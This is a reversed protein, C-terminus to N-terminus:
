LSKAVKLYRSVSSPKTYKGLEIEPHDKLLEKMDVRGRNHREIMKAFVNGNNLLKSSKANLMTTSIEAKIAMFKSQAIEFMGAAERYKEVLTAECEVPEADNLDQDENAALQTLIDLSNNVDEKDHNGDKVPPTKTDICRKLEATRIMMAVAETEYDRLYMHRQIYEHGAVLVAFYASYIGSTLMQWIVQDRYYSPITEKGNKDFWGHSDSVNKCEIIFSYKTPEFDKCRRKWQYWSEDPQQKLCDVRSVTVACDLSAKKWDCEWLEGPRVDYIYNKGLRKHYDDMFKTILIGEIRHGWEMKESQEITLSEPLPEIKNKYISLRSAWPSTGADASADTATIGDHRWQMWKLTNQPIGNVVHRNKNWQELDKIM